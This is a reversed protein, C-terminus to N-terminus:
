LEIGSCDLIDKNLFKTKYEEILNAIKENEKVQQEKSLLEGKRYRSLIEMGENWADDIRQQDESKTPMDLEDVFKQMKICDLLHEFFDADITIDSM